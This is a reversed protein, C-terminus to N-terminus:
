NPQRFGHEDPHEVIPDPKDHYSGKKKIKQKKPKLSYMFGRYDEKDDKNLKKKSKSM